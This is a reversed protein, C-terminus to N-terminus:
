ATGMQSEALIRGTTRPPEARWCWSRFHRATHPQRRDIGPGRKKAELLAVQTRPTDTIEDAFCSRQRLRGARREFVQRAPRRGVGSSTRRCSTAPSSSERFTRRAVGGAERALPNKCGGPHGRDPPPGRSVAHRDGGKDGRSAVCVSGIADEAKGGAAIDTSVASLPPWPLGFRWLVVARPVHM